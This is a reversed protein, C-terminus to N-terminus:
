YKVLSYINFKEKIPNSIDLNIDIVFAAGLTTGGAKQILKLMAEVTGGTALLDDILLVKCNKDIAKKQMEFTATSYETEYSTKFVDLPLKNEKRILVLKANLKYAVPAGFIFGRADAAAITNVNLKKAIKVLENIAFEFAKPENILSNIDRFIIGKKPYDKITTIYKKLDM